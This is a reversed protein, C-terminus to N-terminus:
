KGTHNESLEFLELYDLSIKCAFVVHVLIYYLVNLRWYM